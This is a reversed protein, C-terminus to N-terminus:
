PQTPHSLDCLMVLLLYIVPGNLYSTGEDVVELYLLAGMQQLDEFIGPGYYQRFCVRRTLIMALRVM